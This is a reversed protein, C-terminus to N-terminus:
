AADVATSSTTRAPQNLRSHNRLGLTEAMENMFSRFQISLQDTGTCYMVCVDDSFNPCEVAQAAPVSALGVRRLMSDQQDGTGVSCIVARQQVVSGSGLAAALAASAAALRTGLRGNRRYEPDVIWRGIEVTDTRQTGLGRLFRSFSIDGLVEETVCSPGNVALRYVRVCGVLRSGDYALIHHAYLDIPDPDVFRGDETRFHPRRGNDFLVLGRLSRVDNLWNFSLRQGSDSARDPPPWLHWSLVRSGAHTSRRIKQSDREAFETCDTLFQAYADLVATGASVLAPMSEPMLSLFKAVVRINFDTHAADLVIHETLFSLCHLIGLGLVDVCRGVFLEGYRLPLMEVEYEIAIQAYPADGTLNQEHVWCYQLVGPSPARNLLEDVDVPLSRRANWRDALARVDEVMMLHHGAEARAHGNLAHALEALGMAGCREAARRLWGEVPETMQFGLACFHLLFSELFADDQSSRLADVGRSAAFRQRAPELLREYTKLAVAAEHM